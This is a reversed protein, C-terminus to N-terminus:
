QYGAAERGIGARQGVGGHAHEAAGHRTYYLIESSSCLFILEDGGRRGTRRNKQSCIEFNQLYNQM